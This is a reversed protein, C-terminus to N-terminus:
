QRLGPMLSALAGALVTEMNVAGCGALATISTAEVPRMVAVVLDIAPVAMAVQGCAGSAYFVDEDLVPLLSAGRRTSGEASSQVTGKRNLWWLYGYAENLTSSPALAEDVFGASVVTAGDATGGDLYLRVFAALDRCNTQMGAFLGANGAGDLSLRSTMGLPGFLNRDAFAAVQMGTARELVVELTQVAANNYVWRTGPESQQGLAVAFRSKDQELFALQAYDTVVDHFRGSTNSLLQSITVAESATGKWETIFDSAPQDLTLAGQDAAIGVLTAAVSKTTSFGEQLSEATFGQWFWEGVPEGAQEVVLCNAGAQEVAEALLTFRDDGTSASGSETTSTTDSEISTDAPVVLAADDVSPQETGGCAALLVFGAAVVAGAHRRRM